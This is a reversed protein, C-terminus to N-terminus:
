RASYKLYKPHVLPVWVWKFSERDLINKDDANELIIRDIEQAAALPNLAYAVGKSDKYNIVIIKRVKCEQKLRQIHKIFLYLVVLQFIEIASIIEFLM